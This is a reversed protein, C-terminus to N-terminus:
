DKGSNPNDTTHSSFLICSSASYSNLFPVYKRLSDRANRVDLLTPLLTPNFLNYAARIQWGLKTVTSALGELIKDHLFSMCASSINCAHNSALFGVLMQGFLFTTITYHTLSLFIRFEGRPGANESWSIQGSRLTLVRIISQYSKRTNNGFLKQDIYRRRISTLYTYYHM